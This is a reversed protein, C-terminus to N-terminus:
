PANLPGAEVQVEGNQLRIRSLRELVPGIRAHERYAAIINLNSSIFKRFGEPITGKDPRIELIELLVQHERVYPKFSVSANLYRYAGGKFLTKLPLSVRAELSKETVETFAIMGRLDILAGEHSILHNLEEPTLGISAQEGALTKRGFERIEERVAFVEAPDGPPVGLDTPEPTTFLDIQKNQQYGTYIAWTALLSFVILATIGIACGYSPKQQM